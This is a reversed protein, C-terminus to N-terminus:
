TTRIQAYRTKSRPTKESSQRVQSSSRFQVELRSYIGGAPEKTDKSKSQEQDGFRMKTLYGIIEVMRRQDEERQADQNYRM